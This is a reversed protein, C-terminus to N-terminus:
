VRWSPDVAVKTPDVADVRVDIEAGESMRERIEARTYFTVTGLVREGDDREIELDFGLRPVQHPRNGLRGGTDRVAVVRARAPVGTRWIRDLERGGEVDKKVSSAVGRVVLVVVVLVILAVVWDPMREMM